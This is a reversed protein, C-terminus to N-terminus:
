LSRAVNILNIAGERTLAASMYVDSINKLDDNSGNIMVSILRINYKKLMLKLQNKNVHDEGDTIIIITNTDLHRNSKIDDIATTIACEICTGKNAEVTLINNIIDYPRTLVEHPKNDFFRLFYKRKKITALRYLALAVSRSWVTKTGEYMSGSKDLLIYYSGESNIVKERATFGSALKSYFIEDPMAVERPIAHLINRTKYYGGLEGLNNKNKMVRTFKPMIDILNTAMTIIKESNDVKIIKDTLDLVNDLTGDKKDALKGGPNNGKLLNNVDRARDGIRESEKLAREIIEQAKKGDMSGRGSSEAKKIEDGLAKVFSISYIMSVKDNLYSYNKVRKFEPTETYKKMKERAAELFADNNNDNALRTINSYYLFYLDAAATKIREEMSNNIKIHRPIRERTIRYLSSSTDIGTINSNFM